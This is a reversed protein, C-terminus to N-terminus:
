IKENVFYMDIEGKHKAEIKGRHICNFKEKVLEYTSGSINVKGAEGSSEMRSATNVTDGWIDYAFKRVGVIGAVVTGTHIGIRIEFLEKGELKRQQLHQQMFKQIELAASVVDVANTKNSVPLGGACMYSDGITKIKEINHKAIINDFAKFCTHIVAVLEAPSLKESIQTFDKFDTFMVTVEDFQKADASGKAKLEEAVEEPLINLLLEDSRKKEKRIKNRQVFFVIAFLLVVTFGGILVNRVLKQRQLNKRAIVDKRQQETKQLMEKKDIEYQMQAQVLKRASALNFASDRYIIHMKYAEMSKLCNGRTSDLQALRLYSESINDISGIEKSISLGKELYVHADNYKRQFLYTSGIDNLVTIQLQKLGEEKAITLSPFLYDLAKSYQAQAKYVAGIQGMATAKEQIQGLEEALQLASLNYSLAKTYIKLHMYTDAINLYLTALADKKGEAEAIEISEIYYRLAEPYNGEESYVLAIWQYLDDKSYVNGHAENIRIAEFYNKLAEAFNGQGLYVHGLSVYCKITGIKDGIENKVKIALSLNKFAEPYNDRNLYVRGINSYANGMGPKYGAKESVNFAENAYQLSKDNDNTFYTRALENLIAAKSTDHNANGLAALLSDVFQLNQSFSFHQCSLSFLIITFLLKKKM